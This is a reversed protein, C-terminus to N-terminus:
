LTLKSILALSVIWRVNRLFEQVKSEGLAISLKKFLQKNKYKAWLRNHQSYNWDYKLLTRALLRFERVQLSKDNVNKGYYKKCYGIILNDLWKERKHPYPSVLARLHLIEEDKM